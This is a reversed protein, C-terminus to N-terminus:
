ILSMNYIRVKDLHMQTVEHHVVALSPSLFIKLDESVLAAVSAVLVETSDALELILIMQLMVMNIM